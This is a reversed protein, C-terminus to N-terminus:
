INFVVITDFFTDVFKFLIVTEIMTTTKHCIIFRFVLNSCKKTM